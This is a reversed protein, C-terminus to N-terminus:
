ENEQLHSWCPGFTRPFFITAEQIFEMLFDFSENSSKFSDVIFYASEFHWDLKILYIYLYIHM